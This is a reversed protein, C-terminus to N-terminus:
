LALYDNINLHMNTLGLLRSYCFAEYRSTLCIISSTWISHEPKMEIELPASPCEPPFKKELSGFPM